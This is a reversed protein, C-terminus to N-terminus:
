IVSVPLDSLADLEVISVSQERHRSVNSSLSIYYYSLCFRGLWLQQLDQLRRRRGRLMQSLHRAHKRYSGRNTPLKLNPNHNARHDFFLHDRPLPEPPRQKARIITSTIQLFDPFHSSSSVLCSCDFSSFSDPSCPLYDAGLSGEDGRRELADRM